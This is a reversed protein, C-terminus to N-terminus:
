RIGRDADQPEYEWYRRQERPASGDRPEQRPGQVVKYHERARLHDLRVRRCSGTRVFRLSALSPLQPSTTPLNASQPNSTLAPLYAPQTPSVLMLEMSIPCLFQNPCDSYDKIASINKKMSAVHLAAHDGSSSLAAEGPRYAAAGGAGAAAAASRGGGGGGGGGCSDASAEEPSAAAPTPDFNPAIRLEPHAEVHREFAVLKILFKVALYSIFADFAIFLYYAILYYNADSETAGLVIFYLSWFFVLGTVTCAHFSVLFPSLSLSGYLGLLTLSMVLLNIGCFVRASSRRAGWLGMEGVMFCLQYIEWSILKARLDFLSQPVDRMLVKNSPSFSLTPSLYKKLIITPGSPSPPLPVPSFVLSVLSSM